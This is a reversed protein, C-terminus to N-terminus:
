NIPKSTIQLQEPLPEVTELLTQYGTEAILWQGDRKVYRDQYIASGHMHTNEELNIFIYSLYWLATAQNGDVEIEPTHGNHTALRTATFSTRYFELAPELGELHFQYAPSKFALKVDETLMARLMDLNCTDIARFYRAKLQKILEIAELDLM